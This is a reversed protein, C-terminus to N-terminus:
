NLKHNEEIEEEMKEGGKGNLWNRTGIRAKINPINYILLFSPLKSTSLFFSVLQDFGREPYFTEDKM